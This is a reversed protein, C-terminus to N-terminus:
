DEAFFDSKEMYYLEKYPKMAIRIEKTSLRTQEKLLQLVKNKQFKNTSKKTLKGDPSEEMFLIHWNSLVQIIADGVLVENKKLSPDTEIRETMKDVILEMLKELDTRQDDDMEYTYERQSMVEDSYDEWSLNTKKENYSKKSHDRYFNRVITQCYSFAKVKKGQKNLKNPDFRIMNELLHSLANAEIENIDYNGHHIPYKRLISETM